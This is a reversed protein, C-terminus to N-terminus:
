IHILSLDVVYDTYNKRGEAILATLNNLAPDTVEGLFARENYTYTTGMYYESADEETVVVSDTHEHAFYIQLPLM